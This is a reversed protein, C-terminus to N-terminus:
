RKRKGAKKAEAVADGLAALEESDLKKKLKPFMDTEEEKIHHRIGAQLMEVAAVFGPQDVFKNLQTIGDRALRHEVKAEDSDEKKLHKVVLPYIEREEIQMHLTLENTLKTVM